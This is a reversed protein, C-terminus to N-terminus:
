PCVAAKLAPYAGSNLLEGFRDLPTGTTSTGCSELYDAAVKRGNAHILFAAALADRSVASRSGLCQAVLDSWRKANAVLAMIRSVELRGESTALVSESFAPLVSGYAAADQLLKSFEKLVSASDRIVTMVTARGEETELVSSALATRAAADKRLSGLLASLVNLNAILYASTAGAGSADALLLEAVVAPQAAIAKRTISQLRHAEALLLDEIAARAAEDVILRRLVSTLVTLHGILYDGVAEAGATIGLIAEAVASPEVAVAKRTISQLRQLDDLLADEIDARAADNQLLTPLVENLAALNSILYAAVANPADTLIMEAVVEPQAEILKRAVSKLHEGDALLSDELAAGAADDALLVGLVSRLTGPHAVLYASAAAVGATNELLIEAVAGPRAVVAKRTISQAHDANAVLQNETDTRATDDATISEIIRARSANVPLALNMLEGIRNANLALQTGVEQRAESNALLKEVFRVIRTRSENGAQLLARLVAEQGADSELDCGTPVFPSKYKGMLQVNAGVVGSTYTGLLFNRAQSSLNRAASAEQKEIKGKVILNGHVTVAYNDSSHYTNGVSLFPKFAKEEPSWAGIVLQQRTAGIPALEIRLEDISEAPDGAAGSPTRKYRYMRWPRAQEERQEVPADSLADLAQRFEIAGGGMRLDGHIRARGRLDIEGASTISLHEQLDTGATGQAADGLSVKFRSPRVEARVAGTADTVEVVKGELHLAARGSPSTVAEGVLGAAPRGAPEVKYLVQQPNSRDRILKGLYVPWRQAPDDPPTRAATFTLDEAAVADPERPDLTGEDARELVLRPIEESRYFETQAATNCIKYYGEPREDSGARGYQLFVSLTDTNLHTFEDPAIRRRETLILERGYGDVAMGPLVVPGDEEVRLQLGQVIGWVHHAINHRRRMEMHYAQEQTFDQTRLFQQPFYNVRVIRDESM